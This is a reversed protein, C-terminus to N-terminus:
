RSDIIEWGTIYSGDGLDHGIAAYAPEKYPPQAYLPQKLVSGDLLLQTVFAGAMYSTPYKRSRADELIVLQERAGPVHAPGFDLFYHCIEKLGRYMHFPEDNGDIYQSWTGFPGNPDAACGIVLNWWRQQPRCSSGVAITAPGPQARISKYFAVALEAVAGSVPATWLYAFLVPRVCDDCECHQNYAELNDSNTDLLKLFKASPNDPHNHKFTPLGLVDATQNLLEVCQFLVANTSSLTAGSSDYVVPTWDAPLTAPM